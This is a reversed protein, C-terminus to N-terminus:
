KNPWRAQQMRQMTAEIREMNVRTWQGEAKRYRKKNISNGRTPTPILVRAYSGCKINYRVFSHLTLWTIILQKWSYSLRQFKQMKIGTTSSEVIERRQNDKGVKIQRIKKQNTRNAFALSFVWTRTGCKGYRWHQRAMSSQLQDLQQGMLSGPISKTKPWSKQTSNDM